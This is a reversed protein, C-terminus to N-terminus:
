NYQQPIGTSLPQKHKKKDDLGEKNKESQLKRLAAKQMPTQRASKKAM